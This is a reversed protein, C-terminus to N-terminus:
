LVGTAAKYRLASKHWQAEIGLLSKEAEAERRERTNVLFLSSDGLSFRRREATALQQALKFRQNALEAQKYVQDLAMAAQTVEVQIQALILREQGSVSESALEALQQRGKADRRLLPLSFTLGVTFAPGIGDAGLQLGPRALLDLQPLLDRKALQWDVEALQQGLSLVRLEPRLRYATVKGDEVFQQFPKEDLAPMDDPVLPALAKQTVEQRTPEWLSLRLQESLVGLALQEELLKTQRRRLAQEAEVAEIAASDGLNVKRKIGQLRQDALMVMRESVHVVLGAKVWDWYTKGAKELISLRKALLTAEAQDIKLQAKQEAAQAKNRVLGRLLPVNVELFTEGAEGTPSFSSSADDRRLKNGLAVKIGSRLKVSLKNIAETTYQAEGLKSSTQYRHTLVTSSLTPDFQGQTQLLAAQAQRQKISALLLEPHYLAAQELVSNLTLSAQDSQAKLPYVPATLSAEQEAFASAFPFVIQLAMLAALVHRSGWM